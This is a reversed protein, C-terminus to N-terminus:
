RGNKDIAADAAEEEVAAVLAVAEVVGVALPIGAVADNVVGKSSLGVAVGEAAASIRSVANSTAPHKSFRVSDAAVVVSHHSFAPAVERRFRFARGVKAVTSTAKLAAEKLVHVSTRVKRCGKGDRPCVCSVNSFLVKLTEGWTVLFKVGHDTALSHEEPCV